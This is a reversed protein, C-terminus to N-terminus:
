GECALKYKELDMETLDDQPVVYYTRGFLMVRRQPDRRRRHLCTSPVLLANSAKATDEASKLAMLRYYEDTQEKYRGVPMKPYLYALKRPDKQIRDHSVLSLNTM